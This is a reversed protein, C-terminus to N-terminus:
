RLGLVLTVVAWECSSTTPPKAGHRCFVTFFFLTPLWTVVM